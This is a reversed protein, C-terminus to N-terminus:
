RMAVMGRVGCWANISPTAIGQTIWVRPTNDSMCLRVERVRGKSSAVIAKAAATLFPVLLTDDNPYAREWSDFVLIDHEWSDFVLIDHEAGSLWAWSQATVM